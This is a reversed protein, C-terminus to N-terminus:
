SDEREGRGPSWTSRNVKLKVGEDDVAVWLTHVEDAELAEHLETLLDHFALLESGELKVIIM